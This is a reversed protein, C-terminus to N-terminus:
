SRVGKGKLKYVNALIAAVAKYFVEPIEDGIQLKFLSRALPKDEFQPVGHTRAVEKIKQAILNQGKAIVKPASMGKPDYKLCIAFHTPNTIVVDAKPVEQMMRKRAM